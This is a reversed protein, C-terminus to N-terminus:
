EEIINKFRGFDTLLFTQKTGKPIYLIANEYVNYTFIDSGIGILTDPNTQLRIETIDDFRLANSKIKKVTQPITLSKIKGDNFALEGIEELFEPLEVGDLSSCNYFANNGIVKLSNPLEVKNIANSTFAFGEVKIINKPLIIHGYEGWVGFDAFMWGTITNDKTSYGDKYSVGGAVISADSLDLKTLKSM